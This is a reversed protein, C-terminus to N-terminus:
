FPRGLFFYFSGLGAAARGYALYVPGIPTDVAVFASILLDSLAALLRNIAIDIDEISYQRTENKYLGGSQV